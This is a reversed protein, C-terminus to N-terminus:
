WDCKCIFVMLYMEWLSLYPPPFTVHLEVTSFSRVKMHASIVCNEVSSMDILVPKVPYIFHTQFCFTGLSPTTFSFCIAGYSYQDATPSSSCVNNNYVIILDNSLSWKNGPFVIHHEPVHCNVTHPFLAEKTLNFCLRESPVVNISHHLGAVSVMLQDLLSPFLKYSHRQFNISLM